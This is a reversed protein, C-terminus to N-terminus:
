GENKKGKRGSIEDRRRLAHKIIEREDFPHRGTSDIEYAEHGKGALLVTDGQRAYQAIAAIIADRRSEIVIFEKEKNIGKLIDKIIERPSESRSNDSTVVTFDALRSAIQGMTKRKSKDRDGGCGFLLILKSGKLMFSRVSRLVRELADPTHAYDILVNIEKSEVLELRGSIREIKELAGCAVAIDVGLMEAAAIAELSNMVQFEGALPLEVRRANCKDNERILLYETTHFACKADLACFDGERRSCSKKLTEAGCLSDFIRKGANDDVNIVASKAGYFLKLKAKYYDEMSKHFDLHEESLNTFIACEFVIADTRCQALAHSSVEMVVIEVGDRYMQALTSYLSEPDPTTMGASVALRKGASVTEVTGILGTKYGVSRLIGYLMYAVSTKGNTGTVGVFRMKSSPDGYWLNYLLAAARRTNEVYLLAAGGVCENRVKEAVIVRAGASIAENVYDHGDYRTGRVCIFICNEVVKASDTAIGAVEVGFLETPCELGLPLLLENYLM